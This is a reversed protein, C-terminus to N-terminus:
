WARWWSNAVAYLCLFALALLPLILALVLRFLNRIDVWDEILRARPGRLGRLLRSVARPHHQTGDRGLSIWQARDLDGSLYRQRVQALNLPGTVRGGACIWWGVEAGCTACTLATAELAAGCLPCNLGTM